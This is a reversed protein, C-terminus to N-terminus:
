LEFLNEWKPTVLDFKESNKNYDLVIPRCNPIQLKFINDNRPLKCLEVLICRITCFHSFIALTKQERYDFQTFYKRVREELVDSYNEGRPAREPGFSHRLVRLSDTTLSYERKIEDENRGEFDGLSRERLLPTTIIDANPVAHKATDFARSLDSSFVGDLNSLYESNVLEKAQSIGKETLNTEIAGCIINDQKASVQM